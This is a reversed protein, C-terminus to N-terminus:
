DFLVTALKQALQGYEYHALACARGNQGLRQKEASPMRYFDIIAKALATPDQAAVTIGAEAEQIPDFRGSYAHLIPKGSYLYEPIKNAGIGYQYLADDLWGIYCLDFHELLAPIETKAIAPIFHVNHLKKQQVLQELTAQEKGQGVMVFAIEQYDRLQEAALILNELANATGLTGAYGVIFPRQPLQQQTAQSLPICQNIEDLAIGNPIWTFKDASGGRKEIHEVANKLNSVLKDAHRYARDEIWQMLQIMPHQKAYGGIETLTLPWLDRVEFILRAKLQRALRWAGLFPFPSPSSCLIADPQDAIVRPLQRLRWTFWFWNLVRQKSHAQTYPPVKIWVFHFGDREDIQFPQTITPPTRLLHTYSAAVLYVRHGQKALEKALYYHRGGMGTEPTSAYQHIIWITKAVSYGVRSELM